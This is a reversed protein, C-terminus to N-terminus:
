CLYNQHLKAHDLKAYDLKVHNERKSSIKWVTVYNIVELNISCYILNLFDLLEGQDM